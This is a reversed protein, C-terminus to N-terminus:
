HTHVNKLLLCGETGYLRKQIKHNCPLGISATFTETCAPITTPRDILLNYQSFIKKIAHPTVYARIQNFVPHNLNLPYRNKSDDLNLLYNQYENILLLDIDDLMTKIDGKSSKLFKKVIAHGGEERSTTTTNFHLIKNTFCKFFKTAHTIYTVGLYKM